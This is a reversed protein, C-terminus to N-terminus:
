SQSDEIEVWEPESISATCVSRFETIVAVMVADVAASPSMPANPIVTGASRVSASLPLLGVSVGANVPSIVTMNSNTSVKTLM